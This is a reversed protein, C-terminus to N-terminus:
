WVGPVLRYRVRGAYEKYGELENKLTRDELATRAVAVVWGLVAPVMAWLSGLMMPVAIGSLMIGVYGPHRVIRYPGATVVTHGRDEQIRVVPAFFRNSAMAWCVLSMALGFLVAGVVEVYLSVEPSWRWRHDLGAVVLTLVLVGVGMLRSLVKDWSKAGEGIHSREVLLDPHVRAVLVWTVAIGVFGLGLYVWAMPWDFSGATLFLMGAFLLTGLGLRILSRILLRPLVFETTGNTMM